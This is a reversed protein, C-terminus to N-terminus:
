YPKITYTLTRESSAHPTGTSVLTYDCNGGTTCNTYSLTLSFSTGNPLNFTKNHLATVADNADGAADMEVEIFPLAYNRGSEALFYAHINDVSNIQIHTSTSTISIIATGITSIVIIAVIVSILAGGTESNAQSKLFQKATTNTM